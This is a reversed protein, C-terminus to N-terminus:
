AKTAMLILRDSTNVDFPALDYQGYIATPRLGAQQFLSELEQLQYGRVKERFQYMKGEQQFSIRKYIYGQRFTRRIAFHVGDITREEARVLTRRVKVANLFDLVFVGEPRLGTAVHRLTQLHERDTDFYGFSTFFNFIYDFYNVRFLQRMDHQFFTLHDNEFQQAHRINSSSIDLGTVQLGQRSLYQAHRGRGCALDLVTAGTTPGLHHLLADIFSRAEHDDHHQYLKHYYPSDFWQSFWEAKM